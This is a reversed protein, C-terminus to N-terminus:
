VFIEAKGTEKAGKTYYIVKVRSENKGDSYRKTLRAAEELFTRKGILLSVPSGFDSVELLIEDKRALDSIIKNEESDRGVILKAKDDFRFHRGVKLLELDRLTVDRNYKLEERLRAAFNKDTLLCGGAPPLYTDIGFETALRLQSKRSRGQIALLQSREVLGAKEMETKLLLKGSLPRLVMGELGSAKDIMLLTRLFQTMPRQGLVEGTVIFAAGISDGYIKAEKLMLIRCDICPNMHKGYGYQPSKIIEIFKMGLDIYKIGEINISIPKVVKESSVRDFSPGNQHSAIHREGFHLTSKLPTFPHRFHVPHCNYGQRKCWYLALLSDIGGSVLIVVKM